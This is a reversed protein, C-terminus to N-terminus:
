RVVVMKRAAITAGDAILRYVYVGPAFGSVNREYTGASLTEDVATRVLRGSIDYVTLTVRARDPVDFAITASGTSPNPRSQYLAFSAPVGAGVTVNVPGFRYAIGTEDLAELVYKYTYGTKVTGDWYTFPSAGTILGDNLKIEGIRVAATEDVTKTTTRYLNFGAASGDSVKWSLKVRGDVPVGRFDELSVDLFGGPMHGGYDDGLDAPDPPMWGPQYMVMFPDGYWLYYLTNDGDHEHQPFVFTTTANAHGYCKAMPLGQAIYDAMLCWYWGSGEWSVSIYSSMAGAGGHRMTYENFMSAGVLCTDWTSVMSHVNELDANWESQYYGSGPPSSSILGDDSPWYPNGWPDEENLGIDTRSAAVGSTNGHGSYYFLFAGDNVYEVFGDLTQGPPNFPHEDGGMYTGEYAGAHCGYEYGADDLGDWVGV